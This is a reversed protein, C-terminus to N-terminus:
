GIGREARFTGVIANAHGHGMGYDAKLLRVMEMHALDRHPELVAFWYDIPKGHKKEIATFYSVIGAPDSQCPPLTAAPGQTPRPRPSPRRAARSRGTQATTEAGV